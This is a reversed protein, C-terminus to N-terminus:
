DVKAISKIPISLGGKITIFQSGVCWITTEVQYSKNNETEFTIAVKGKAGNGLLQARHLDYSRMVRADEDILVDNKSFKLDRVAEKDIKLIEKENAEM